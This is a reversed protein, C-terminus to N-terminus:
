ETREKRVGSKTRIPLRPENLDTSRQNSIKQSINEKGKTRQQKPVQLNLKNLTKETVTSGCSPHDAATITYLAYVDGSYM